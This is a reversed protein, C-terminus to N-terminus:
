EHTETTIRKIDIKNMHKMQKMHKTQKFQEMHKMQEHMHDNM